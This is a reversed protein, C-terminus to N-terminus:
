TLNELDSLTNKPNEQYRNRWESWRRILAIPNDGPNIPAFTGNWWFWAVRDGVYKCAEDAAADVHGLKDWKHHWLGSTDQTFSNEINTM